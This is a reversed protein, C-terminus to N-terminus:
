IKEFLLWIYDKGILNLDSVYFNNEVYGDDEDKELEIKDNQHNVAKFCTIFNSLIKKTFYEPKLFDQNCLINNFFFRTNEPSIYLGFPNSSTRKKEFFKDFFLTTEFNFFNAEKFFLRGLKKLQSQTLTFKPKSIRLLFSLFVLRKNLHYFHSFKRVM